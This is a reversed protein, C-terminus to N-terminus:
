TKQTINMAYWCDIVGKSLQEYNRRYEGPDLDDPHTLSAVSSGILEENSFGTMKLAAQNTQVIRTTKADVAVLGTPSNEFLSRFHRESNKLRNRTEGTLAVSMVIVMALTGVPGPEVFNVVSLRVLLGLTAGILFLVVAFLMCLDNFQRSARYHSVLAHLVYGLGAMVCAFTYYAWYGGHGDGRTVTEGWPLKLRHIGEFQDYQLTFPQILNAMLAVSLLSSLVVLFTTSQRGTYLRIFWPFVLMFLIAFSINWKLASIFGAMDTAQLMHIHFIAFPVALLCMGSFLMQLPAYVSYIASSFHHFMAYVMIGALLYLSPILIENMM